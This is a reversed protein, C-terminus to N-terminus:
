YEADFYHLEAGGNAYRYIYVQGPAPKGIRRGLLDYIIYIGKPIINVQEQIGVVACATNINTIFFPQSGAMGNGYNVWLQYVGTDTVTISQNFSGTSWIYQQFGAPATLTVSNIGQSCTIVPRPLAFPLKYIFSRYSIVSDGFFIQSLKNGSNNVLEVSPYPRRNDGYDILHNSDATLQHNGMVNSFFAPNPTYEWTKTATWAATDLRYIVARSHHGTTFANDFLSIKGHGLCRVDHQGSFGTDNAFTFSSSKGGLRWIVGGTSHNIKYVANLHRFSVLLNGDTDQSIANGHCYDFSTSTYGYQSYEETPFIHDLSNWQFVLNHATDFEMIVYATVDTTASGQVGGFTYASLDMTSDRNEFFVVHGNSLIQFEHVNIPLGDYCPITSADQFASDMLVIHNNVNGPAHQYYYSFRNTDPQYQFNWYGFTPNLSFWIVYGDKDLIMGRPRIFLPYTPNLFENYPTTIYYGYFSTDYQVFQYPYLIGAPVPRNFTQSFLSLSLQCLVFMILIRYLKM